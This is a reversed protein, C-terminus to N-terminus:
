KSFSEKKQQEDWEAKPMYDINIKGDAENESVIAFDNYNQILWTDYDTWNEFQQTMFSLIDSFSAATLM